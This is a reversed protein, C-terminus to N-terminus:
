PAPTDAVQAPESTASWKLESQHASLYALTKEIADSSSPAEIALEGELKVHWITTNRM